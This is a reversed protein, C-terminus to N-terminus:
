KNKIYYTLKLLLKEIGNHNNEKLYEILYNMFRESESMKKMFSITNYKLAWDTKFNKYEFNEMDILWNYYPSLKKIKEFIEGKLEVNFKFCLNLFENILSDFNKIYNFHLYKDTNDFRKTCEDILKDYFSNKEFKILEYISSDIYLNLDFKDNLKKNIKESVETKKDIDLFKFLVIIEYINHKDKCINCDCFFRNIIKEIFIHKISKYKELQTLVTEIIETNHFINKEFSLELIEELYEKSIINGKYNLFTVLVDKINWESVKTTKVFCILYKVIENFDKSNINFISILTFLNEFILYYKAEFKYINSNDYKGVCEFLDIENTFINEVFELFIDKKDDENKYKLEKLNYKNYIELIKKRDGYNIVLM